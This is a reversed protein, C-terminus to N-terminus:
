KEGWFGELEVGLGDAIRNAFNMYGIVLVMQHIEHDTFGCGRLGEIDAPSVAEPARTLKAAYDLMMRNEATIEAQDFDDM